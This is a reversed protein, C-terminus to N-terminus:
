TKVKSKLKLFPEELIKYIIFAFATVAAFSVIYLLAPPEDSFNHGNIFFMIVIEHTMYMSFSIKGYFQLVRNNLINKSNKATYLIIVTFLIAFHYYQYTFRSVALIAILLIVLTIAFTYNNIYKLFKKQRYFLVGALCGILICDFRSIIFVCSLFDEYPRESVYFAIYRGAIVAMCLAILWGQLSKKANFILLPIFLYFIEEVGISWSPEAYPLVTNQSLPIHPLLFLYYYQLKSLNLRADIAEPPISFSLAKVHPFVYLSLLIITYYLPWIRLIRKTYFGKIKKGNTSGKRDKIQLLHATILFGSLAFFGTVGIRGLQFLVDSDLHHEMRAYYKMLEIHSFFVMIAFIGRLSDLGTNRTSIGAVPAQVEPENKPTNTKKPM